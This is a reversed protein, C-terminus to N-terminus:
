ALHLPKEFIGHAAEMIAEPLTPHAHITKALDDATLGKEVALVCEQILSSAQPGMISAGIVVGEENALLKVLGMVEGLALAKGNASFPFKSIKYAKGSAKLAQETEGVTAIEPYTFIASPIARGEMTVQRGAIHEAVVMGQMSAVHALMTGGVVDGIAYIKPVSTQMQGNVRIAGCELELGLAKVQIGRMNPKRGTALLVQQAPLEKLGKADEVHVILAGDGASIAKVSTKTLIQIGSKKLLPTLRKPIEEDIMPLLTPLMEIVSVQVGLEHYISAFELGIVGGGIIVLSEPLTKQELIEESTVVGPLELGPVPISAPLSGTALVIHDVQIRDIGTESQVELYGAEKVEGWAKVVNIKKAKLLQEIGGVLTNVVQDKRAMIRAFDFGADHITIGFDEAHKLERWLEASKVLTKTPICGKNLCTGGLRGEEILIVSLGLQAARLACVYGGPGGGLIGVQYREM